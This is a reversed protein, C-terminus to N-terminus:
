CVDRSLGRVACVRAVVTIDANVADPGPTGSLVGDSWSLWPPLSPSSFTAVINTRSVQPDWVHPAWQWNHGHYAIGPPTGAIKRKFERFTWQIPSGNEKRADINWIHNGKSKAKKGDENFRSIYPQNWLYSKIQLHSASPSRALGLSSLSWADTWDTWARCSFSCLVHM